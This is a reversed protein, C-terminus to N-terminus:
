NKIYKIEIEQHCSINEFGDINELSIRHGNLFNNNLKEQNENGHFNPNNTQVKNCPNNIIISENYCVIKSKNISNVNGALVLELSNPNKYDKFLLPLIDVTNFIHGDLSMPYGYDGIEGVWKFISSNGVKEFIPLKDYITRNSYCSKLKIHLRLSRCIIYSDKNFIKEQDDYFDIKNKFVDDDVFFVSYLNETSIISILDSKFSTERIFNINKFDSILIDYGKKFDSSSFTYLVNIKYDQCNIVYKNFSRLFLELQLARDKSFVVINM